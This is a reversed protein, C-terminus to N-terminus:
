VSISQYLDIVQQLLFEFKHRIDSETQKKHTILEHGHDLLNRHRTSIMRSTGELSKKKGLIINCYIYFLGHHIRPNSFTKYATKLQRKTGIPLKHFPQSNNLATLVEKTKKGFLITLFQECDSKVQQEHYRKKTRVTGKKIKSSHENLRKKARHESKNKSGAKKLAKALDVIPQWENAYPQKKSQCAKQYGDFFEAWKNKQLQKIIPGREENPLELLIGKAAAKRSNETKEDKGSVLATKFAEFQPTTLSQKFPALRKKSLTYTKKYTGIPEHQYRKAIAAPDDIPPLNALARKLTAKLHFTANRLQNFKSKSAVWEKEINKYSQSYGVKAFADRIKIFHQWPIHPFLDKLVSKPIHRNSHSYKFYEGIQKILQIASLREIKNDFNLTQMITLQNLLHQYADRELAINTMFIFSKLKPHISLPTENNQAQENKALYWDVSSLQHYSKLTAEIHPLSELFPQIPFEIHQNLRMPKLYAQFNGWPLETAHKKFKYSIAEFVQALLKLGINIKQIDNLKNIKRICQLAIGILQQDRKFNYSAKEQFNYPKKFGHQMLKKALAQFPANPESFLHKTMANFTRISLTRAEPRHYAEAYSSKIQALKPCKRLLTQILHDSKEPQEAHCKVAVHLVTQQYGDKWDLPAGCEVLFHALKFYKKQIAVHLCTELDSNLERIIDHRNQPSQKQLHRILTNESYQEVKLHFYSKEFLQAFTRQATPSSFSIHKRRSRKKTHHHMTLKSVKNLATRLQHIIAEGQTTSEGPMIIISRDLLITQLKKSHKSDFETLLNLINKSNTKKRQNSELTTNPHINNHHRLKSIHGM